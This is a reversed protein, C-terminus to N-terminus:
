AKLLFVSPSRTTTKRSSSLFFFRTKVLHHSVLGVMEKALRGTDTNGTITNFGISIELKTLLVLVDDELQVTLKKERLESMTDWQARM